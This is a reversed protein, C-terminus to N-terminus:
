IITLHNKETEIVLQNLTRDMVVYDNLKKPTLNKIKTPLYQWLGPESIVETPKSQQIKWLMAIAYGAYTTAQDVHGLNFLNLALYYYRKALPYYHPLRMQPMLYFDRLDIFGNQKVQEWYFQPSKINEEELQHTFIQEFIFDSIQSRYVMRLLNKPSRLQFYNEFVRNNNHLRIHLFSQDDIGFGTLTIEMQPVRTSIENKFSPVIVLCKFADILISRHPTNAELFEKLPIQSLSLVKLNM